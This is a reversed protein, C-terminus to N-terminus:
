HQAIFDACAKELKAKAERLVQKKREVEAEDADLQKQLADLQRSVEAQSTGGIVKKEEVIHAPDMAAHIEDDTLSTKRNFLGMFIDDIEEHGIEDATKKHSIMYDVVVAVIEHAMRFSIGDKRVLSNALETVTCFNSKAKNLMNDRKLTLTGVTARLLEISAEMEGVATWFFHPTEEVVECQLTYPTNKLCNIAGMLFGEIHAAKGKIIEFTFPNKKQPMISSCVAAGDDVEVYGFDPTSWLYLDFAFRSFTNSALSFASLMDFMYDRTAVSDISNNMPFDFGLLGATMNRDINFTTSGMSGAGLPCRNMAYYAGEIRHFDREMANLVSSCYHGFTIPESPQIHTYGSMVADTNKRAVEIVTQRMNNFLDCIKFYAHRAMIRHVTATLDNRSRATHQQGGIELSTKSILYKEMNFFLDESDPDMPFTPWDGMQAMEDNAILLQKAADDTIIKQKALMLTHAKNVDLRAQYEHYPNKKGDEFEPLTLYKVVEPLPPKSIKGRRKSIDIKAM